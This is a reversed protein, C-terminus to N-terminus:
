GVDGLLKNELVRQVLLDFLECDRGKEARTLINMVTPGRPLAGSARLENAALCLATWGASGGPFDQWKRALEVREEDTM